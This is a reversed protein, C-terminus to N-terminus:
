LWLELREFFSFKQWLLFSIEAMSTYNKKM